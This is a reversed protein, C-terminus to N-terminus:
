KYITVIDGYKARRDSEVMQPDNKAGAPCFRGVIFVFYWIDSGYSLSCGASGRVAAPRLASNRQGARRNAAAAAERAGAHCVRAHHLCGAADWRAADLM